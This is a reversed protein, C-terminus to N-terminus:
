RNPPTVVGNGAFRISASVLDGAEIPDNVSFGSIIAPVIWFDTADEFLKFTGTDGVDLIDEFPDENDIYLEVTGTVDEVGEIRQKACNTSSSSFEKVEQDRDFSWERIHPIEIDNWLVKGTCANRVSM